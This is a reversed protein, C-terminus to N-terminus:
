GRRNLCRSEFSKTKDGRANVASVFEAGTLPHYFRYGQASHCGLRLLAEAQAECEVGEAVVSLELAQSVAIIARVIALDYADLPLGAVFCQDIKLVDVPFRKLYALSSYGTGFDDIAIRAGTDRLAGLAASFFAVDDMLLGETVELVLRAPALDNAALADRVITELDFASLQRASINVSMSLRPAIAQWRALQRCSEEIVWRGIPMILGTEEALAIFDDPLVTGRTPHEWRLLAEAGVIAGSDLSVVPQFRLSFEDRDVARRLDAILALRDRSTARLAESFFETRNRGKAKAQLLAIDADRLLADRGDKATGVAVGMSITIPVDLGGVTCPEDMSQRLRDALKDAFPATGESIVVFEDGGFRAVTDGGRVSGELRGAVQSLLDDGGAHGAATNVDKFGDVDVFVVAVHSENREARELAVQLRDVLLLRNPLGTLADHMAQHILTREARLPETVDRLFGTFIPPGPLDVRTIALEVPFESGDARMATIQLRRGIITDTGTALYRAFGSRHADRLSPPVIIEALEKGIVDAKRYGFTDEAAPNFELIRGEHNMTVVCDLAADLIAAKRAESARLAQAALKQESIDRTVASAGVIAGDMDHIPSVAISVDLITGDKRRRETEFHAIRQEHDLHDNIHALEDARHPPVLMSMNHGVTESATYGFMDEAGANWSTIVGDLTRGVIADASCEVIAALWTVAARERNTAAVLRQRGEALERRARRSWGPWM